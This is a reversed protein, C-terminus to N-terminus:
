SLRTMYNDLKLHPYEKQLEDFLSYIEEIKKLFFWIDAKPKLKKMGELKPVLEIGYRRDLEEKYRGGAAMGGWANCQGCQGHINMHYFGIEANNGGMPIYHGGQLLRWSEVTKGCSVCHGFKLYDRIRTYDSLLSWARDKVVETYRYKRPIKKFNPFNNKIYEKQIKNM